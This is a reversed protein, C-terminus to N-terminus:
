NRVNLLMKTIIKTGDKARQKIHVGDYIINLLPNYSLQIAIIVIYHEVNPRTRFLKIPM